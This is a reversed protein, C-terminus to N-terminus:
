VMSRQPPADALLLRTLAVRSGVGLKRYVSKLYQKVTHQSLHMQDAIEIDRLGAIVLKAVELERKSLLQAYMERVETADRTQLKLFSVMIAPDDNRLVSQVRLRMGNRGPGSIPAEATLVGDYPTQNAILDDFCDIGFERLEDLLRLARRNLHRKGTKADSVVVADDVLELAQVLQNRERAAAEREQLSALAVGVVRGVASAVHRLSSGGGAWEHTEGFVLYGRIEDDVLVPAQMIREFGHLHLVERYIRSSRWEEPTMIQRNDVTAKDRLVRAFLPDVSRGVEEYRALFFDSVGHTAVSKVALSHPELVYVGLARVGTAERAVRIYRKQLDAVDDATFLAETLTALCDPADLKTLVRQVGVSPM